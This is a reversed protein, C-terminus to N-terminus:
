AKFFNRSPDAAGRAGRQWSSAIQSVPGAEFVHEWDLVVTRHTIGWRSARCQLQDLYRIGHAVSREVGKRDLRRYWCLCVTEARAEGGDIEVLHNGLQHTTSVLKGSLQQLFRMLGDVGGRYLGHDDYADEFYCARVLAWDGRDVGRAYRVLLDLISARALLEGLDM